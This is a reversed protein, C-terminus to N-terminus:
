PLANQVGVQEKVKTDTAPHKRLFDTITPSSQGFATGSANDIGRSLLIGIVKGNPIYLLSGSAGPWVTKDLVYMFGGAHNQITGAVISTSTLPSVLGLPFGTFTVHTGDFQPTREFRAFTLHARATKLSKLPNEVPRCVALDLAADRECSAFRFWEIKVTKEYTDWGLDPFYIAPFCDTREAAMKESAELVHNATIFRGEADVFFGSGLVHVVKFVNDKNSACVIPVISQKIHSITEVSVLEPTAAFCNCWSLLALLVSSIYRL